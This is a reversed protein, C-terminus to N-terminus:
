GHDGIRRALAEDIARGLSQPTASQDAHLRLIERVLERDLHPFKEARIREMTDFLSLDRRGSDPEPM